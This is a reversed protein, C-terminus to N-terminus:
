GDSGPPGREVGLAAGFAADADAISDDSYSFASFGIVVGTVACAALAAIAGANWSRTKASFPVVTEGAGPVGQLVRATLAEDPEVGRTDLSLYTDLARADAEVAGLMEGHTAMWALASEREDAPWRAPAAGYAAFIAAMRAETMDSAM